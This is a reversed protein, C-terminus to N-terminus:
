AAAELRSQVTSLRRRVDPLCYAPIFVRGGGATEILVGATRNVSGPIISVERTNKKRTGTM